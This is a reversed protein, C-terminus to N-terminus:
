MMVCINVDWLFLLNMNRVLKLHKINSCPHPKVTEMEAASLTKQAALSFYEDAWKLTENLHSNFMSPVSSLSLSLSLPSLGLLRM